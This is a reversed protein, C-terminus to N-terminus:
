PRSTRVLSEIFVRDKRRKIQCERKLASSKDPFEEYYVLKWPRKAKTYQSRGRNHRHLREDLDKTSGVYYSGDLESQLIYIYYPM